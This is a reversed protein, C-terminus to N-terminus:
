WKSVDGSGQQSITRLTEKIRDHRANSIERYEDFEVTLWKLDSQLEALKRSQRELENGENRHDSCSSTEM